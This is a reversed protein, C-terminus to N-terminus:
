KSFKNENFLLVAINIICLYFVTKWMWLENGKHQSNHLTSYCSVFISKMSANEYSDLVFKSNLTWELINFHLTFLLITLQKLSLLKFNHNNPKQM